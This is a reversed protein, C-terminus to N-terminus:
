PKDALEKDLNHKLRLANGIVTIDSLGMAGAAILPGFAGLLGFAALPIALGNYIFAFFLNQKITSLTQRAVSITQAVAVVHEGPIIVDASEIAITTGSALAIGLDSQALAAADNIGDGVMASGAPLKAILAAKSEPTAQAHIENPALGLADGVKQAVEQRDGSLLTVSLGMKHLMSIAQKADKRIEDAVILTGVQKGDISIKCTASEDRSIEIAQGNVIGRVGQGPVAIFDTVTPIDLELQKAYNVIARAIPHESPMEVAAAISLMDNETLQDTYVTITSLSPKGTTLTGTKDFVVHQCKGAIELAQASKVLIGNRSAAGTGVMVAM